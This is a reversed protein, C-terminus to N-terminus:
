QGVRIKARRELYGLVLSLSAGGIAGAVAAGTVSAAMSEGGALWIANSIVNGFAYAVAGVLALTITRPLGKLALSLMGGGIFGCIGGVALSRVVNEPDFGWIISAVALAMGLGLAHGLAGAFFLKVTKGIDRLALGLATGGVAGRIAGIIVGAATPVLIDLLPLGLKEQLIYPAEGGLDWITWITEHLSDEVGSWVTLGVAGGIAFGLMGLIAFRGLAMTVSAESVSVRAVEKAALRERRQREAEARAEAQRAEELRGKETLERRAVALRTAADRYEADLALVQEFGDIADQWRGAEYAKEAEAYLISLREQKEREAEAKAREERARAEAREKVEAEERLAEELALAMDGAKQYRKEREKALAKLLIAEVAPSIAPNIQSPPPPPEDTHCRMVGLPTEGSFPVQGTFMQYVVVGLSYNDSRADLERTGMAQEPSMYEPTGFIKGTTTLATAAAAKAIGFDTVTAHDGAGIMVNSPKIDRHVLDRSHAYDLASTVQSTIRLIRSLALAGEERILRALNQGGLYEMAIYVVGELTGFEYIVVINPHKLSAALKAEQQFRELFSPDWLLHPALAKLAVTRDLTTDVAEYVAAFGGRGIEGIIEYKGLRKPVSNTTMRRVEEERYPM